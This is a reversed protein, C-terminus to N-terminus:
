MGLAGAGTTVIAHSIKDIPASLAEISASRTTSHDPDGLRPSETVAQERADSLSPILLVLPSGVRVVHALGSSAQQQYYFIQLLFSIVIVV